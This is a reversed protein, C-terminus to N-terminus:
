KNKVNLLFLFMEMTVLGSAHENNRAVAKREKTRPLAAAKWKRLVYVVSM